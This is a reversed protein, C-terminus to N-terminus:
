QQRGDSKGGPEPRPTGLHTGEAAEPGPRVRRRLVDLWVRTRRQRKLVPWADQRWATIVAQDRETAQRGPSRCAGASGTCCCMWGRWRTSWGFRRWVLEGIRALTWYQGEYGWTAPGADLLAELARRWRNASMRPVRFRRAVEGDSGEAEILDVAALRVQERRGWEEATLGGGDPYRM